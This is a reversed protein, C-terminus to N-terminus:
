LITWGLSIWKEAEYHKLGFKHQEIGFLLIPHNNNASGLELFFVFFFVCNFYDIFVNIFVPKRFGYLIKTKSFLKDEWCIANVSWNLALQPLNTFVQDYIINSFNSYSSLNQNRVCVCVCVCVCLPLSVSLLVCNTRANWAICCM